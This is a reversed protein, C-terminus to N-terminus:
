VFSPAEPYSRNTLPRFRHPERQPRGHSAADSWATVASDNPPEGGDATSLERWWVATDSSARVGPGPPATRHLTVGAAPASLDVM